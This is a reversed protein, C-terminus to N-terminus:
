SLDYRYLDYKAMIGTLKVTYQPDTAYGARHMEAVFRDPDDRYAFATSYRPNTALTAGHDRFSDAASAYVRFSATTPFCQGAPTCESTSHTRCGIAYSGQGNCKMGFFNRDFTSLASRGWGSELIAQAITVSAPVGHERRSQQAGPVSAAIFEANTMTGDPETAAPPPEASPRPRTCSPGKARCTFLIDGGPRDLGESVGAGDLGESVSAGDLGESVSAGDLGESVSAGDLG